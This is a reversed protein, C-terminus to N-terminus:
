GPPDVARAAFFTVATARPPHAALKTRFETMHATAFHARLAEMSDWCETIRLVGPDELDISFAYERCGDEARSAAQMAVIADRMADITAADTRIVGNVVISM